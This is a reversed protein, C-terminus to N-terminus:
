DFDVNSVVYIEFFNTINSNNFINQYIDRDYNEAQSSVKM